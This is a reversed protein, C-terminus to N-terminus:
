DESAFKGPTCTTRDECIETCGVMPHCMKHCRPATTCIQSLTTSCTLTAFIIDGDARSLQLEARSTPRSLDISLDVERNGPLLPGRLTVALPRGRNDNSVLSTYKVGNFRNNIDYQQGPGRGDVNLSFVGNNDDMQSSFMADYVFRDSSAGPGRCEVRIIANANFSLGALVTMMM